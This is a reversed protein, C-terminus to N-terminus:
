PQPGASAPAPGLRLHVVEGDAGARERRDGLYDIQLAGGDGVVLNVARGAGALRWEAGAAMLRSQPREGAIHV